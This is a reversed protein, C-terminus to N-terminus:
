KGGFFTRLFNTIKSFFTQPEEPPFNLIEETKSSVVKSDLGMLKDASGIERKTNKDACVTYKKSYHNKGDDKIIPDYGNVACYSYELGCNGEYFDWAGCKAKDPLICEGHQGGDSETITRYGYGLEKCYVAAPNKMSVFPKDIAAVFSVCFVLLLVIFIIKVTGKKM